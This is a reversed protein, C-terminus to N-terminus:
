DRIDARAGFIEPEYRLVLVIKDKVDVGAYDDYQFEDATAGYGVFVM